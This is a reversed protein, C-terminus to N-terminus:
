TLFLKYSTMQLISIIDVIKEKIKEGEYPIM